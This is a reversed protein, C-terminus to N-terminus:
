LSVHKVSDNTMTNSPTEWYYTPTVQKIPEPRKLAALVKKKGQLKKSAELAALAKKQRELAAMDEAKLTEDLGQFVNESAPVKIFTYLRSYNSKILSDQNTLANKLALRHAERLDKKALNYDKVDIKIAALDNLTSVMAPVSRQKRALTNAQLIFWKAQAFHRQSRYAKSLSSYSNVLGTTDDHKYYAKVALLSYNAANELNIRRTYANPANKVELYCNALQIYIGAKQIDDTTNQLQQRLSDLPNSYGATALLLLYASLLVLKKM